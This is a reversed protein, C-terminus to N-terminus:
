WCKSVENISNRSRQISGSSKEKCHALTHTNLLAANTKIKDEIPIECDDFRGM